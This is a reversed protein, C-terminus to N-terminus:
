PLKSRLKTVKREWARIEMEWHRITAHNPAQLSCEKAIKDKHEDIVRQLGQIVHRLHKNAGM